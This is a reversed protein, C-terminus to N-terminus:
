KGACRPTRLDGVEAEIAVDLRVPLIQAGYHDLLDGLQAINRATAVVQDGAALAAETINRGLGSGSGTVLWTRIM